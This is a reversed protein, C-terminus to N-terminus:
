EAADAETETAGGGPEEGGADDDGGPGGGDGAPAGGKGKRRGPRGIGLLRLLSRDAIAMRAITSWEQYWAWMESEAREAEADQEEKSPGEGGRESPATGLERLLGQAVEIAQPTLGRRALLKRAAEGKEGLGGEVQPRGLLELRRVFTGVSVVVALGQTQSLNRFLWAHVEPARRALTAAAIPFWKNEWADLKAVAEPGAAAQAPLADLSTASQRRLLAWGEELDAPTFGYSAMIQAIVPHRLGMLFRLLRQAKQGVSLTAM